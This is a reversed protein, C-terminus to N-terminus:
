GKRLDECACRIVLSKEKGLIRGAIAQDYREILGDPDLNTTILFALGHELRHNIVNYLYEQTINRLTPEVGLDDIILLDCDLIEDLNGYNFCYDKFAEVLEFASKFVVDHGRERLARAVTKATHTKGTGTKGYLVINPKSVTPFKDCYKKLVAFIKQYEARTKEDTFVKSLDADFPCKTVKPKPNEPTYFKAFMKDRQAVLERLRPTNGKPTLERIERDLKAFDRNLLAKYYAEMQKANTM